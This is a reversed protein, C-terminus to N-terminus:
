LRRSAAPVPPLSPMLEIRRLCARLTHAATRSCAGHLRDTVTLLPRLMAARSQAPWDVCPVREVVNRQSPGVGELLDLLLDVHPGSVPTNSLHDIWAELLQHNDLAPHASDRRPIDQDLWRSVQDQPTRPPCLWALMRAVRRAVSSKGLVDTIAHAM